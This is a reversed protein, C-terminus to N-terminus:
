ACCVIEAVALVLTEEMNRCNGGCGRFERAADTLFYKALTEGYPGYGRVGDRRGATSDYIRIGRGRAAGTVDSEAM